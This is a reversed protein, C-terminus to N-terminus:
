RREFYITLRWYATSQLIIVRILFLGLRFQQRQNQTELRRTIGPKDSYWAKFGFNRDGYICSKASHLAALDRRASSNQRLNAYALQTSRKSNNSNFEGIDSVVQQQAYTAKLQPFPQYVSGVWSYQWHQDPGGITPRQNDM